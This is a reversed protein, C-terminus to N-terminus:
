RRGGPAGPDHVDGAHSDTEAPERSADPTGQGSRGPSLPTCRAQPPACLAHMVGALRPTVCTAALLGNTRSLRRAAGETTARHPGPCPDRGSATAAPTARCNWPMWAAPTQGTMHQGESM